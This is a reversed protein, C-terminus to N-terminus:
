HVLACIIHVPIWAGCTLVDLVLHFGHNFPPKVFVAGANNQQVVILQQSPPPQQWQQQHGHQPYGHQQHGHQPYSAPGPHPQIPYGPQPQGWGSPPAPEAYGPQPQGWGSPAAQDSRQTRTSHGCGPCSPASDSIERACEPCSVLAM